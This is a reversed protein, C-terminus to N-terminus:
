DYGLLTPTATNIHVPRRAHTLWTHIYGFEVKKIRIIQSFLIDYLKLPYQFNLKVIQQHSSLSNYWTAGRTQHWTNNM